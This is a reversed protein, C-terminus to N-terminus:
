WLKRGPFSCLSFDAASYARMLLNNDIMKGYEYIYEDRRNGCEGVSLVLFDKRYKLREVAKLLLDYGKRREKLSSSVFIIIKKDPHLGLNKRSSIKDVPYFLNKALSNSILYHDFKEFLASSKSQEVMWGSLGVLTLNLKKNSELARKKINFIESSYCPNITGKLLPCVKCGKQFEKCGESYHCGGTFPNMDRLTWVIRKETSSFFSYYDLFRSTWHLNIIDAERYFSHNMINYPTDPFSFMIPRFEPNFLYFIKHAKGNVIDLRRMFKSFFGSPLQPEKFSFSNKILNGTKYLFLIKSDVGAKLLSEHMRICGTAAGGTDYTNIHLIKM